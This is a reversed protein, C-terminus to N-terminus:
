ENLKTQPICWGIPNRCDDFFICAFNETICSIRKSRSIELGDYTSNCGIPVGPLRTINPSPANRYCRRPVFGQSSIVEHCFQGTFGPKCICEARSSQSVCEGNRGCIDAVTAPGFGPLKQNCWNVETISNAHACVILSLCSFLFNAFGMATQRIQTHYRSARKRYFLSRLSSLV